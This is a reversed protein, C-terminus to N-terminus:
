HMSVYYDFYKCEEIAQKYFETKNYKKNLIAFNTRYAEKQGDENAYDYADSIYYQNQECKALMFFNMAQFEEDNSASFARRYYEAAKTCDLFENEDEKIEEWEWYWTSLYYDIAMWSNGFHTINYYGNGLRHYILAKDGGPEAAMKELHLMEEAFSLKTYNDPSAYFDCDHCDWIHILFPNTPLQMQALSTDKMKKFEEIAEQWQYSRMLLTGKIELMDDANYPYQSALFQQFPRKSDSMFFNYLDDATTMDPNEYIDYYTVVAARCMEEDMVDHNAKYYKMLRYMVLKYTDSATESTESKLWKIDELLEMEIKPDIRGYAEVHSLIKIMRSQKALLENGNAAKFALGCYKESSEYHQNILEILAASNYWFSPTRINANNIGTKIFALLEDKDNAEPLYSYVNENDVDNYWASPLNNRQMKEIERALLLELLPSSPELRLIENLAPLANNNQNIGTLAWLVAKEHDNKAMSLCTLWTKENDIWFDREAYLRRSPCKDFVISNYYSSAAFQGMRWYAGAKLSLCWYKMLSESAFVNENKDYLDICEKYAGSYHALRIAQYLYRQKIFVDKTKLFSKIAEVKYTTLLLTDRQPSSWWDGNDVLPEVVKAFRLYKIAPDNKNSKWYNILSNNQWNDRLLVSKGNLYEALQDYDSENSNYIINEIEETTAIHQFYNLWEELNAGRGDFIDTSKDEDEYYYWNDYQFWYHESYFFPYFEPLSVLEQDLPKLYGEDVDWGDWACSNVLQVPYISLFSILAISYTKLNKM